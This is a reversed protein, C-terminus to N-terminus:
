SSYLAYTINWVAPFLCVLLPNRPRSLVVRSPFNLISPRLPTVLHPTGLLGATFEQLASDGATEARILITCGSFTVLVHNLTESRWLTRCTLGPEGKRKCSHTFNFGLPNLVKIFNAITFLNKPIGKNVDSFPDQPKPRIMTQDDPYELSSQFPIGVCRSIRRTQRM